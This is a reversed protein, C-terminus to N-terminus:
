CDLHRKTVFRSAPYSVLPGANQFVYQLYYSRVDAKFLLPLLSIILVLFLFFFSM